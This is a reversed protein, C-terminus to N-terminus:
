RVRGACRGLWGEEWLSVEWDGKEEMEAKSAGISESTSSYELLDGRWRRM